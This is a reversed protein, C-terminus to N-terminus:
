LTITHGDQRANPTRLRDMELITSPVGLCESAEGTEETREKEAVVVTIGGAVIALIEFEKRTLREPRTTDRLVTALRVADVAGRQNLIEAPLIVTLVDENQANSVGMVDMPVGAILALGNTEM